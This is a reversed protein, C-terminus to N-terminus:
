DLTNVDYLKYYESCLKLNFIVQSMEHSYEVSSTTETNIMMEFHIHFLWASPPYHIYIKLVNQEINYKNKIINKSIALIHELLPVDHARLDRLSKLKTNKVIALLHMKCLDEENWFYTPMLIFKEDVYIIKEQESKGDIINYIWKSKLKDLSNLKSIYQEYTESTIKKKYRPINDNDYLRTELTNLINMNKFKYTATNQERENEIIPYIQAPINEEQLLYKSSFIKTEKSIDKKLRNENKKKNTEGFTLSEKPIMPKQSLLGRDYTAHLKHYPITENINNDAYYLDHNEGHNEDHNEDHNEKSFNIKNNESLYNQLTIGDYIDDTSIYQQPTRPSFKTEPLARFLCKHVRQVYENCPGVDTNLITNINDNDSINNKKKKVNATIKIDKKTNKPTLM